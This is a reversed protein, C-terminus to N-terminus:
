LAPQITGTGPITGTFDRSVSLARLLAPGASNLSAGSYHRNPVEAGRLLAPERCVGLLVSLGSKVDGLRIQLSELLSDVHQARAHAVRRLLSGADYVVLDAFQQCFEVDCGSLRDRLFRHVRNM